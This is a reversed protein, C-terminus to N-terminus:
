QEVKSVNHKILARSEWFDGYLHVINFLDRKVFVLDLLVAKRGIQM